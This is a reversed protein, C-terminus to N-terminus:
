ALVNRAVAMREPLDIGQPCARAAAEFDTGPGPREAPHLEKYLRRAKGTERYCEHYMLLRLTDAIRVSGEIASECHRSCGECSVAATATALRQLQQFESMSLQRPSKAAAINEALKKTNDMHSVAADIREDAWVAKLKAQPLTFDKSKFRIVRELDDPVSRQTKMAILGIGAKRCADIARNLALDGYKAFHYRFMIADIGGVRAAKDLLEVVRDGHCSFGFFKTKGSKRLRDGVALYEKDLVKADDVAHMFFLDLYDTKLQELCADIGKEYEKPVYRKSVVKSTIWVKKRDGIQQLFPAITKHSMGNEYVLATDLYDVGEKFARHLIKDYKPDFRQACGLVLIPIKQGTSGLEKRPVKGAAGAQVGSNADGAANAAGGTGITIGLGAGTAAAAKLFGRRTAGKEDM